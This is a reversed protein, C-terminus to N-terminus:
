VGRTDPSVLTASMQCFNQTLLRTQLAELCLIIIIIIVIVIIIIIIIIIHYSILHLLQHVLVCSLCPLVFLFSQSFRAFINSHWDLTDNTM